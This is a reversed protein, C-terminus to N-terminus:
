NGWIICTWSISRSIKCTFEYNAFLRENLLFFVSSVGGTWFAAISDAIALHKIYTTGSSAIGLKSAVFYALINGIVGVCTVTLSVWKWCSLILELDWINESEDSTHASDNITLTM